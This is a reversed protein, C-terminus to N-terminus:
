SFKRVLRISSPEAEFLDTIFINEQVIDMVGRLATVIKKTSPITLAMGHQGRKKERKRVSESVNMSRNFKGRQSQVVAGHIVM